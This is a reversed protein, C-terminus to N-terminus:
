YNKHCSVCLESKRSKRLLYERKAGHPNHCTACTICGNALPLSASVKMEAPLPLDVPHTLGLKDSPHCHYCANLGAEKENVLVIHVDNKQKEIAKLGIEGNTAVNTEWSILLKRQPTRYYRINRIEVSLSSTKKEKKEDSLTLPIVKFKMEPSSTKNGCTDTSHVQFTYIAGGELGAITMQHKYVFDENELKNELVKEKGWTVISTAPEDTEWYITATWFIGREIRVVHVSEIRPPRKDNKFPLEKINLIKIKKQSFHGNNDSVRIYGEYLNKSFIDFLVFHKKGFPVHKTVMKVEKQTSSGHCVCCKGELIPPHPYPKPTILDQHCKLCNVSFCTTILCVSLIFSLLIEKM